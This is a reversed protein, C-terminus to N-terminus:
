RGSIRLRAASRDSSLRRASRVAGVVGDVNAERSGAASKAGLVREDAGHVLNDADEGRHAVRDAQAGLHFGVVVVEFRQVERGTVRRAVGLVRQHDFWSRLGSRSRRQQHAGMGRRHLDVGHFRLRRRQPDDDGALDMAVIGSVGGVRGDKVLDLAEADVGVDGEGIELASEVM